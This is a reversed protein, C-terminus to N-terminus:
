LVIKESRKEGTSVDTGFLEIYLVTPLMWGEKSDIFIKELYAPKGSIVMEAKVNDSQAYVKIERKSYAALTMHYTKGSADPAIHFGYAKTREILNLEERRGDEALMVWYAIVPEKRFFTGDGNLQADYHVVNANKSRQIHFLPKSIPNEALSIGALFVTVIAAFATKKM